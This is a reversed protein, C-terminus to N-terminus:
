QPKGLRFLHKDSRLFVAGHAVAPSAQISEGLDIKAIVEGASNDKPLAVIQVLGNDACCILTNGALVPTSWFSGELRLRWRIDGSNSDAAVLVGGRNIVFLHRYGIVPSAAGPKLQNSQWVVQPSKNSFDADLATIGESPLFLTTYQPAVSSIGDCDAQHSWLERGTYPDHATLKDPSQLLVLGHGLLNHFITPSSWAAAPTRDVRWKSEGTAADIGAAFSNGQNEAQVVVVGDVVTPSSSMGVDNGTRPYDVALPRYWLLNGDLDLAILDNSSYFAFV